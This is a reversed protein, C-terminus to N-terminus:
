YIRSLPRSWRRPPPNLGGSRVSRRSAPGYAEEASPPRWRESVRV